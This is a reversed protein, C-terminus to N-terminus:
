EKSDFIVFKHETAEGAENHVVGVLDTSDKTAVWIIHGREEIAM